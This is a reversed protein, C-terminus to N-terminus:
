KAINGTVKVSWLTCISKELDSMQKNIESWLSKHQVVIYNVKM